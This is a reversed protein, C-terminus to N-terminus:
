AGVAWVVTASALVLLLMGMMTFVTAFLADRPTLRFIPIALAGALAPTGLVNLTQKVFRIDSPVLWVLMGMAVLAASKALLSPVDGVPRQRVFALTLLGFVAGVTALPLFVLTRAIGGLREFFSLEPINVADGSSPEPIVLQPAGALWSLVLLAICAAAVVTWIRPNSERSIPAPLEDDDEGAGEDEAAAEDEGAAEDTARAAATGDPATAPARAGRQPAGATPQEPELEYGQTTEDSSTM